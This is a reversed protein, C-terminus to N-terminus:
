TGLGTPPTVPERASVQMLAVSRGERYGFSYLGADQASRAGVLASGPSVADVAALITEVDSVSFRKDSLDWPLETEYLDRCRRFSWHVSRRLTRRLTATARRRVPISWPFIGYAMNRCAERDTSSDAQKLVDMVAQAVRDSALGDIEHFTMRIQGAISQAVRPPTVYSGDLVSSVLMVLRDMSDAEISVSQIAPIPMLPPLWGPTLAPIGLVSAEIATSSVWHILACSRLMWGDVTGRQVVHLNPLDDLTFRYTNRDEFPHPRVIFTVRPFRHALENAVVSLGRLAKVQSAQWRRVYDESYNFRRVMMECEQEPSQFKPNALAFSANILILPKAYEDAYRSITRAAERWRASLFDSRPVGTVCIQQPLYWTRRIAYDAFSPTWACYLRIRRRVDDSRAMTLAYEAFAPGESTDEEVKTGDATEPMTPSFITGETDLVGVGIGADMLSKAFAENNTRLYNLLVFDPMLPWIERGLINMPILFCTCGMQCLRRAVLALGPLDRLPNDVVLAVRRGQIDAM